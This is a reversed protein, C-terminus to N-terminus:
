LPLVEGGRGGTGEKGNIIQIDGTLTEVYFLM